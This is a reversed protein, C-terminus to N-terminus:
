EESAKVKYFDAIAEDLKDHHSNQETEKEELAREGIARAKVVVEDSNLSNKKNSFHLIDEFITEGFRNKFHREQRLLLPIQFVETFLNYIIESNCFSYGLVTSERGVVFILRANSVCVDTIKKIALAMDISYEIVTLLRNGRNRRNSGFEKKAIKLVDYGLFEVSKRYNQHYNFVNIYPPSTLVFDFSSKDSLSTRIDGLVAKIKKSSYPMEIVIKKLKEYEKSARAKDPVFHYLDMLIILCSVLISIVDEKSQTLNKLSPLLDEERSQDITDKIKSLVVLRQNPLYNCLESTKAMYYASPNLEVGTAEINKRASEVLVTGSGVFPDLVHTHTNAFANLEAEVFQPSFQGNWAFLSSRQKIDLDLKSQPIEKKDIPINLFM